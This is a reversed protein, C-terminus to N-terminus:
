PGNVASGPIEDRGVVFWCANMEEEVNPLFHYSDSTWGSKPRVSISNSLSAFEDLDPRHPVRHRDAGQWWYIRESDWLLLSGFSDARLRSPIARPDWTPLKPFWVMPLFGPFPGPNVARPGSFDGFGVRDSIHRVTLEGMGGSSKSNM